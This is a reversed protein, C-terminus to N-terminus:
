MNDQTGYRASNGCGAQWRFMKQSETGDDDCGCLYNMLYIALSIKERSKDSKVSMHGSDMNFTYSPLYTFKEKPNEPDSMSQLQDNFRRLSLQLQTSNNM